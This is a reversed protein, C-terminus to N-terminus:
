TNTTLSSLARILCGCKGCRHDETLRAGRACRVGASAGAFGCHLGWLPNNASFNGVKYPGLNDQPPPDRAQALWALRGSAAGRPSAGGAAPPAGGWKCAAAGQAARQLRVASRERPFFPASSRSCRGRSRKQKQLTEQPVRDAQCPTKAKLQRTGPPQMGLQM